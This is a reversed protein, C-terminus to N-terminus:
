SPWERARLVELLTEAADRDVDLVIRRTATGEAATGPRRSTRGWDDGDTAVDIGAPEDARIVRAGSAVVVAA